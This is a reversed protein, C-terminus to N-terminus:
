INTDPHRYILFCRVKAMLQRSPNSSGPKNLDFNPPNEVAHTIEQLARLPEGLAKTLKCGQIFSFATENRQAQLISSYATQFHSAKIAIKSSTLWTQGIEGRIESVKGSSNTFTFTHKFM